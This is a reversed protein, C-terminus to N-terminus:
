IGLAKFLFSRRPKYLCTEHSIFPEAGWKKKFFTVGRSIGLGLNMFRKCQRLADKVAEHLLLDSAGPIHIKGSRFNFMYFGYNEAGYEAVTFAVLRGKGDRASWLATSPTRSVYAPVRAFIYRSPDEIDRRASFEEIMRVHEDSLATGKECVLERSARTVMNRLKSKLRLDSVSLRYYADGAARKRPRGWSPISPTMLSILSPQFEKVSLELLERLREVDFPSELPYGVFILTGGSVFLVHDHFLFPEADTVAVVYDPLQEPVYAHRHILDRDSATLM